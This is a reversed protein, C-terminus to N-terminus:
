FVATKPQRVLTMVGGGIASSLQELAWVSWGTQVRCFKKQNLARTWTKQAKPLSELIEPEFTM